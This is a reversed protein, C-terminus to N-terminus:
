EQQCRYGKSQFKQMLENGDNSIDLLALGKDDLQAVDIQLDSIVADDELYVEAKVGAIGDYLAQLQQIYDEVNASLNAVVDLHTSQIMHLSIVEGDKIELQNSISSTGNDFICRGAFQQYDENLFAFASLDISVDDYEYVALKHYSHEEDDITYSITAEEQVIKEDQILYSFENDIIEGDSLSLMKKITAVPLSFSMTGDKFRYDLIEDDKIDYPLLLQYLSAYEDYAYLADGDNVFAIGDKYILKTLTSGNIIDITSGEENAAFQYNFDFNIKTDDVKVLSDIMVSGKIDAKLSTQRFQEYAKNTSCGTIMLLIALLVLLKKM